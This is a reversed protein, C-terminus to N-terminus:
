RFMRILVKCFGCSFPFYTTFDNCKSPNNKESILVLLLFSFLTMLNDNTREFLCGGGGEFARGSM